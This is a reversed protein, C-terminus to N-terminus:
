AGICPSHLRTCTVTKIITAFGRLQEAEYRPMMTLYPHGLRGVGWRKFDARQDM